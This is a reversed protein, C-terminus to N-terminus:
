ETSLFRASDDATDCNVKDGFASEKPSLPALDNAISGAPIDGSASVKPILQTSTGNKRMTAVRLPDVVVGMSMLDRLSQSSQRRNFGDSSEGSLNQQETTFARGLVAIEGSRGRRPRLECEPLETSTAKLKSLTKRKPPKSIRRIKPSHGLDTEAHAVPESDESPADVGQSVLAEDKAMAAVFDKGALTAQEEPTSIGGVRTSRKAATTNKVGRSVPRQPTAEMDIGPDTRRSMIVLRDGQRYVHMEDLRPVLQLEAHLSILGILTDCPYRRRVRLQMCGFTAESNVPIYLAADEILIRPRGQENSLLQTLAPQLGPYALAQALARGYIAHVNVFDPHRMSSPGSGAADVLTADSLQPSVMEDSDETEPHFYRPIVSLWSTSDLNNEGIVHMPPLGLSSQLHRVNLMAQMLRADRVHPPATEGSPLRKEETLVMVTGHFRKTQVAQLHAYVLVDGHTHDIQVQNNWLWGGDHKVFDQSGDCEEHDRLVWEHPHSTGSQDVFKRSELIGKADSLKMLKAFHSEHVKCLFHVGSGRPLERIIYRLTQRLRVPQYWDPRWGCILVHVPLRKPSAVDAGPLRQDKFDWEEPAKSSAKPMSRECLFLLSDTAKVLRDQQPVFGEKDDCMEFRFHKRDMVGVLVANEWINVADGFRRGVIRESEPLEGVRRCWLSVGEFSLMESLAYGSGPHFACNFLISNLFGMLNHFHVVPRYDPTKFNAAGISACAVNMQLVIRLNSWPPLEGSAFLIHRIALLVRLTAGNAVWGWLHSERDDLEVMMTVIAVAHQVGVRLLDHVNAPDGVRCVIDWGVLNWKRDIGRQLMAALIASEMQEKAMDHAMIVIRGAAVPTSPPVRKWWFIRRLLTANQLRWQHRLFCLECVLHVTADSWGLIVTHDGDVVQTLGLNINKFCTKVVEIVLAVLVASVLIGVTLCVLYVIQQRWTPIDSPGQFDAAALVQWIVFVAAGFPTNEQDLMHWGTGFMLVLFVVFAFMILFGAWTSVSLSNELMYLFKEHYSRRDVSYVEATMQALHSMEALICDYDRDTSYNVAALLSRKKAEGGTCIVNECEDFTRRSSDILDGMDDDVKRRIVAPLKVSADHRADSSCRLSATGHLEETIGM